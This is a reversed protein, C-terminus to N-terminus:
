KMLFNALLKMEVAQASTTAKDPVNFFIEKYVLAGPKKFFGRLHQHVARAPSGVTDISHYVFHLIIFQAHSLQVIDIKRGSDDCLPSVMASYTLHFVGPILAPQKPFAPNSLNLNLDEGNGVLTTYLGQFFSLRM